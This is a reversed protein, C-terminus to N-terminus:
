TFVCHLTLHYVTQFGMFNYLLYVEMIIWNESQWLKGFPNGKPNFSKFSSKLEASFTKIEKFHCFICSLRSQHDVDAQKGRFATGAEDGEQQHLQQPVEPGKRRRFEQASLKELWPFPVPPSRSAMGQGTGQRGRACRAGSNMGM